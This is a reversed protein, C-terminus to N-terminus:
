ASLAVPLTEQKHLVPKVPLVQSTFMSSQADSGQM